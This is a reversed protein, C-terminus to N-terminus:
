NDNFGSMDLRLLLQRLFGTSSNTATLTDSSSRNEQQHPHNSSSGIANGNGGINSSNSTTGSNSEVDIGRENLVKLVKVLLRCSGRFKEQLSQFKEIRVSLKELLPNLIDEEIVDQDLGPRLSDLEVTESQSLQSIMQFFRLLSNLIGHIIKLVPSQKRKLLSQLLMQDLVHDHEDRLVTLDGLGDYGYEVNNDYAIDGGQPNRSGAIIQDEVHRQIVKIKEMFAEWNQGMAVNVIYGQLGDFIQQAEFRFLHLMRMETWLMSEVQLAKESASSQQLPSLAMLAKQRTRLIRYIQKMSAGVRALRLQFTFLRTYKELASPTFILLRLPRPAKYDLYLFDLAELANPDRCISNEDDYGKVAFALIEELIDAAIRRKRLEQTKRLKAHVSLKRLDDTEDESAIEIDSSDLEEQIWDQHEDALNAQFCDLLVARLTMEVEGSRPPWTSRVKRNTSTNSSTTSAISGRRENRNGMGGPKALVESNESTIAAERASKISRTLLGTEDEFLAEGLRAVFQGDRMLLFREMIELHGLLNLDHFYLSMVCTSILSTRARITSCISQETLAALPALKHLRTQDWETAGAPLLGNNAVLNASELLFSMMDPCALTMDKTQGLTSSFSFFGMLDPDMKLNLDIIDSTSTLGHKSTHGNHYPDLDMNEASDSGNLSDCAIRQRKQNGIAIRKSVCGMRILRMKIAELIEVRTNAYTIRHNNLDESVYFWKLWCGTMPFNRDHTILPHRPEFEILIQLEKGAEMIREALRGDLFKVPSTTKSMQFEGNYELPDALVIPESGDWSWGHRSHVFFEGFPDLGQLSQQLHTDFISFLGEKRNSDKLFVIESAHHNISESLDNRDNGGHTTPTIGMWRSLIDLYPKSTQDLISFMLAMWLSDSQSPLELIENYIMSLLLPGPPLYFGAGHTIEQSVHCQCFHALRSLIMGLDHTKHYLELLHFHKDKSTAQLSVITGQLFTLYSSLSRGFAIRILSMNEPHHICTDAVAVLRRMHAGTAMMDELLRAISAISCGEIRNSEVDMEFRRTTSNYNFISSTTGGLLQIACEVLKKYPVIKPSPRFKFAYDMHRQYISEFTNTGAETLYPSMALRDPINRPGLNSRTEWSLREQILINGTDDRILNTGTLDDQVPKGAAHWGDVLSSRSQAKNKITQGRAIEDGKRNQTLRQHKKLVTTRPSQDLLLCDDLIDRPRKSLAPLDFSLGLTEQTTLYSSTSEAARSAYNISKDWEAELTTTTKTNQESTLSVPQYDQVNFDVSAGPSQFSDFINPRGIDLVRQDLDQEWAVDWSEAITMRTQQFKSSQDEGSEAIGNSIRPIQTDQPDLKDALSKLGELTDSVHTSLKTTSQTPITLTKLSVGDGVTEFLRPDLELPAYASQPIFLLSAPDLDQM